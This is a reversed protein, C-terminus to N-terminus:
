NTGTGPLPVTLLTNSDPMVLYVVNLNPDVAIATIPSPTTESVLVVQGTIDTITFGTPTATVVAWGDQVVLPPAGVQNTNILNASALTATYAQVTANRGQGPYTGVSSVMNSALPTYVSGAQVTSPSIEDTYVNGSTDVTTAVLQNVLDSYGLAIISKGAVPQTDIISMPQTNMQTLFGVGGVWLTGSATLAVSTPQGGVAITAIVTGTTLNVQTVTSDTYNAVYATSGDSSVALAVPQNGVSVNSLVVDNVIDLISVTNSGSNAVVARTTGSYSSTDKNCRDTYNQVVPVSSYAAVATPNLGVNVNTSGILVQNQSYLSVVPFTFYNSGGNCMSGENNGNQQGCKYCDNYTYTQAGVSVGFPNGPITQSSAIYLLNTGVTSIGSGSNTQNAVALSYGNQQLNSPFPFTAQSNDSSVSTATETAVITATGNFVYLLPMGYTTNFPAYGALTLTQPLQGLIAFRTSVQTINTVPMDCEGGAGSILVTYDTSDKGLQKIQYTYFNGDYSILNNNGCWFTLNFSHTWLAPAEGGCVWYYDITNYEEPVYSCYYPGYNVNNVNGEYGNYSQVTGYVQQNQYPGNYIGWVPVGPLPITPGNNQGNASIKQEYAFVAFGGATKPVLIPGEEPQQPPPCGTLMMILPISILMFINRVYKMSKEKDTM